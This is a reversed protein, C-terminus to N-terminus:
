ALRLCAPLLWQQQLRQRRPVRPDSWVSPRRTLSLLWERACPAAGNTQMNPFAGALNFSRM